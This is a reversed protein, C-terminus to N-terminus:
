PSSRTAEEHLDWRDDYGDEWENYDRSLYDYPCMDWVSFRRLDPNTEIHQSAMDWGEYYIPRYSNDILFKFQKM